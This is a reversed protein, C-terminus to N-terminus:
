GGPGSGHQVWPGTNKLFIRTTTDRKRKVVVGFPCNGEGVPNHSGDEDSDHRVPAVGKWWPPDGGPTLHGTPHSLLPPPMGEAVIQLMLM